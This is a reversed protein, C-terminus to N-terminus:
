IWGYADHLAWIFVTAEGDMTMGTAEYTVSRAIETGPAISLLRAEPTGCRTAGCVAGSGGADLGTFRSDGGVRLRYARFRVHGPHLNVNPIVGPGPLLFDPANLTFRVAASDYGPKDSIRHPATTPYADHTAVENLAIDAPM